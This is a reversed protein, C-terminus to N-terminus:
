TRALSFSGRAAPASRFRFGSGAAARASVLDPSETQEGETGEEDDEEDAERDGLPDALRADGGARNRDDLSNGGVGRGGEFLGELVALAFFDGLVETVHGLGLEFAVEFL